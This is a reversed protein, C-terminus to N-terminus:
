PLGDWASAPDPLDLMGPVHGQSRVHPLAPPKGKLQASADSVAPEVPRVVEPPAL